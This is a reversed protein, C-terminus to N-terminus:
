PNSRECGATLLVSLEFTEINGPHRERVEDGIGVWTPGLITTERNYIRDDRM